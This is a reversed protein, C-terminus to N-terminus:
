LKMLRSTSRINLTAVCVIRVGSMEASTYMKMKPWTTPLRMSDTFPTSYMSKTSPVLAATMSFCPLSFQAGEVLLVRGAELPNLALFGSGVREARVDGNCRM